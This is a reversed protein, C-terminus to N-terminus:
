AFDIVEHKGDRKLKLWRPHEDGIWFMGEQQTGILIDMSDEDGKLAKKIHYIETKHEPNGIPLEYRKDGVDIFTYEVGEIRAYALSATSAIILFSLILRKMSDLM